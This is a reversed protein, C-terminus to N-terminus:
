IIGKHPGVGSFPVGFFTVFAVLFIGIVMVWGSWLPIRFTLKLHLSLGLLLWTIFAWTELSDWAWYRGWADQAWVAGALLMCSHFVFAFAIFRWVYSDLVNDNPLNSLWPDSRVLRRILLTCALGVAVLCLGLFIKGM